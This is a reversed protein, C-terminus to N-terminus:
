KCWIGCPLKNDGQNIWKYVGEQDECHGSQNNNDGDKIVACSEESPSATVSSFSIADSSEGVYYTNGSATADYYFYLETDNNDYVNPVKTWLVALEASSDWYEIEVPYQIGSVTDTVAIKFRDATTLEDFVPTADFNNVGASNSLKIMTPFDVLNDDVQDAPITLKLRNSFGDLYAM